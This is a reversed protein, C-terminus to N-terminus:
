VVSCNLWYFRGKFPSKYFDSVYGWHAAGYLKTLLISIFVDQYYVVFNFIPKMCCIQQNLILSKEENKM